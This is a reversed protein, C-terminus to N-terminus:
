ISFVHLHHKFANLNTAKKTCASLCSRLPSYECWRCGAAALTRMVVIHFLDITSDQSDAAAHLAPCLTYTRRALIRKHECKFTWLQNIACVIKAFALYRFSMRSCTAAAFPFSDFDISATISRSAFAALGTRGNLRQWKSPVFWVDLSIIKNIKLKRGPRLM